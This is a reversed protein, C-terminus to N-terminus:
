KVNITVALHVTAYATGDSDFENVFAIGDVQMNLLHSVAKLVKSVERANLNLLNEISYYHDDELLERILLQKENDLDIKEKLAASKTYNQAKQLLKTLECITISVTAKM